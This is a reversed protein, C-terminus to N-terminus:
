RLWGPPVGVRRAERKFREYNDRARTLSEQNRKLREEVRQIEGYVSSRNGPHNLNLNATRLRSLYESDKKVAEELRQIQNQMAQNQSRWAQEGRAMNEVWAKNEQQTKRENKLTAEKPTSDDAMFGASKGDEKAADRINTNDLSNKSKETKKRREEEKKKLDALNVQGGYIPAVASSFFLIAFVLALSKM